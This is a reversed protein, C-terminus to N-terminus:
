FSRRRRRRWTHPLHIWAWDNGPLSLIFFIFYCKEFASVVTM